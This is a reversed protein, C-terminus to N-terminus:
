SRPALPWEAEEKDAVMLESKGKILDGACMVCCAVQRVHNQIGHESVYCFM